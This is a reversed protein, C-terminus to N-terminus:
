TVKHDNSGLTVKQYYNKPLTHSRLALLDVLEFDHPEPKQIKYQKQRERELEHAKDHGLELFEKYNIHFRRSIHEPIVCDTDGCNRFLITWEPIPGFHYVYSLRMVQISLGNIKIRGQNGSKAGTWIWHYKQKDVYKFFRNIIKQTEPKM